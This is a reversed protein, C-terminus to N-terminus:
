EFPNVIRVGTYAMDNVNRTVVVMDHVLASAAIQADLEPRTKGSRGAAGMVGGWKMAAELDYPVISERYQDLIENDLWANLKTKRPDSDDLHEIGRKLEGVAIASIYFLNDKFHSKLWRLVKPNPKRKRLESLVCTDVLYKM